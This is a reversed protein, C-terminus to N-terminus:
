IFSDTQRQTHWYRLEPLQHFRPTKTFVNLVDLIDEWLRAWVWVSECLSECIWVFERFIADIRAFECLNKCDQMSKCLVWVSERLTQAFESLNRYIWAIEILNTCDVESKRLINCVQASKRLRLFLHAFHLLFTSPLLTFVLFKPIKSFFQFISFKPNKTAHIGHFKKTVHIGHFKQTAHIDMKEPHDIYFEMCFGSDTAWFIASNYSIEHDMSNKKCPNGHLNKKANICMKESPRYFKWVFDQTHLEFFTQTIDLEMTWPIKRAHIGHLNKKAHIGMKDPYSSGHSIQLRYSM